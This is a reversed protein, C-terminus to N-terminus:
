HSIYPTFHPDALACAQRCRGNDFALDHKIDILLNMMIMMLYCRTKRTWQQFYAKRLRKWKSRSQTEMIWNDTWRTPTRGRNRYTEHRSRWELITNTWEENTARAVYMTYMAWESANNM